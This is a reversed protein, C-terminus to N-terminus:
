GLDAAHRVTHEVSFQTALGMVSLAEVGRARLLSDLDTGHFANNCAHVLAIEGAIPQFGEM